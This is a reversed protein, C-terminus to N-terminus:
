SGSRPNPSGAAGSSSSTASPEPTRRLSFRRRPVGPFYRVLRRGLVSREIQEVLFVYSKHALQMATVWADHLYPDDAIIDPEVYEAVSEEVYRQSLQSYGMGARHRVLEHTLTRSVGTFIFNWVGHELVSGHGVEKIHRLYALNGGPRPAAFSMYCLRGATETLEEAAIESDTQWSVGHEDFFRKMENDDVMQRGALFVSPSHIIKM